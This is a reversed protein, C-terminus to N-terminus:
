CHPVARRARVRICRLPDSPVNIDRPRPQDCESAGLLVQGEVSAGASPVAGRVAHVVPCQYGPRVCVQVVRLRYIVTYHQM